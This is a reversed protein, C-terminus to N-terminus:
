SDGTKRDGLYVHIANALDRATGRSYEIDFWLVNGQSDLLYTRPHRGTAVKSYLSAEADLLVTFGVERDAPLLDVIQESPDGINIAVVSLGTNEFPLVTEAELRQIQERGLRNANAWFVIVTLKEGFLEKLSHEQGELDSLQGVPFAEGTKVLCTDADRQTMLVQPEYVYEPPEPVTLAIKPVKPAGPAHSAVVPKPETTAPKEKVTLPLGSDVNEPEAVKAIPAALAENHPEVATPTRPLAPAAQRPTNDCGAIVTVVVFCASWKWILSVGSRQIM